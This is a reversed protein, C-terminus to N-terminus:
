QFYKGFIVYISIPCTRKHSCVIYLIKYRALSFVSRRNNSFCFIYKDLIIDKIEPKFIFDNKMEALFFVNSVFVFSVIHISSM